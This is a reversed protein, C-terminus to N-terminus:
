WLFLTVELEEYALKVTRFTETIESFRDCLSMRCFVDGPLAAEADRWSM